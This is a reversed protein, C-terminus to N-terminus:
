NEEREKYIIMQNEKDKFWGIISEAMIPGVGEIKELEEESISFQKDRPALAFHPFNQALLHATEEGVNPISLAIILRPLSVNKAKEISNAPVSAPLSIRM